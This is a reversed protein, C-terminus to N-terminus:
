HLIKNFYKFCEMKYLFTGMQFTLPVNQEVLNGMYVRFKTAMSVLIKLLNEEFTSFIFIYSM